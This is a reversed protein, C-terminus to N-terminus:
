FTFRVGLRAVRPAFNDQVKFSGPNPAFVNNQVYYTGYDKPFRWHITSSNFVNFIDVSIVFRGWGETMIRKQIGINLLFINDSRETGLPSMFITARQSRPNPLSTDVITFTERVDRGEQANFTLSLDIDWWPLQYVAMAKAM